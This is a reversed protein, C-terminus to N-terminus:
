KVMEKYKIIQEPSDFIVFDVVSGLAEVICHVSGSLILGAACAIVTLISFWLLFGSNRKLTRM